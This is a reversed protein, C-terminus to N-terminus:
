TLARVRVFSVAPVQPWASLPEQQLDEFGKCVGELFGLNKNRGNM